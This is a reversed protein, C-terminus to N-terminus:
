RAGEAPYTRAVQIFVRRGCRARREGGLAGYSQARGLHVHGCTCRYAVAWLRRSGDPSYASAKVTPVGDTTAQVSTATRTPAPNQPRTETPPPGSRQTQPM